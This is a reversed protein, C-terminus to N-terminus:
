KKNGDYTYKSDFHRCEVMVLYKVGCSLRM